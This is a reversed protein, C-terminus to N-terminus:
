QNSLQAWQLANEPSADMGNQVLFNHANILDQSNGGNKLYADKDTYLVGPIDVQYGQNKLNSLKAITQPQLLPNTPARGMTNTYQQTMTDLQGAMLTIAGQVTGKLEAPSANPSLQKGWDNISTIDTVGTGKFFKALEDKVGTAETQAQKVNPNNASEAANKGANILGGIFPIGVNGLSQVSNTFAVLHQTAKNAANIATSLNGSQLNKLYSSRASYQKEDFTPDYQQAMTVMQQRPSENQGKAIRGSFTNPDITYSSLGKIGTAMAGNSGGPLTALFQDQTAKVPVGKTNTQVVPLNLSNATNAISNAQKKLALDELKYAADFADTKIKEALTQDERNSTVQWNSQAQADKAAQLIHEQVKDYETQQLATNKDIRNQIASAYKFDNDSIAQQAKIIDGNKQTQLNAIQQIGYSITGQLVADSSGVGRGAGVLYATTGAAASANALEQQKILNAYSSQINDIQAAGIADSKAKLDLLMSNFADDQPNTATLAVPQGNADKPVTGGPAIYLNNYYGGTPTTGDNTPPKYGTYNTNLQGTETNYMNSPDNPAKPPQVVSGNAYTAIGTNTDTKIGSGNTLANQKNNINLIDPAKNSSLTTTSQSAYPTALTTAGTALKNGTATDYNVTGGMYSQGQTLVNNAPNTSAPAPNYTTGNSAMTLNGTPKQNAPQTFALANLAM